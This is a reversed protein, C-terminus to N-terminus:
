RVRYEGSAPDRSLTPYPEREATEPVRAARAEDLEANIRRAEKIVLKVLLAAGLAGLAWAIVPPMNGEAIEGALPVARLRDM